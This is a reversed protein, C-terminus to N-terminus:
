FPFFALSGLDHTMLTIGHVHNEQLAIDVAHSEIDRSLLLSSEFIAISRYNSMAISFAGSISLRGILIRNVYQFSSARPNEMAFQLVVLTNKKMWTMDLRNTTIHQLGIPDGNIAM